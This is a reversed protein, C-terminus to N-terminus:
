KLFAITASCSLVLLLTIGFLAFRNDGERFWDISLWVIRVIPAVMLLVICSSGLREGIAGPIFAGGLALVLAGFLFIKLLFAMQGSGKM